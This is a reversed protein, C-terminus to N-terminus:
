LIIAFRKREEDLEAKAPLRMGDLVMIPIIGHQKLLTILGLASDMFGETNGNKM